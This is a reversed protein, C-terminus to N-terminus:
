RSAGSLSGSSPAPGGEQKDEVPKLQISPVMQGQFKVQIVNLMIKKGVWVDSEKGWKSSLIGVNTPNLVLDDDHDSFSLCLKKGNDFEREYSKEITLVTGDLGQDQVRKASLLNGGGIYDTVDM